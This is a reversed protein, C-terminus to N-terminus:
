KLRSPCRKRGGAPVCSLIGSNNLQLSVLLRKIKHFYLATKGKSLSIKPSKEREFTVNKVIKGKRFPFIM